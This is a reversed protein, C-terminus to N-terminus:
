NLIVLNTRQSDYMDKVENLNLKGDGDQDFIELMQTAGREGHVDALERKSLFGDNDKDIAKFIKGRLKRWFVSNMKPLFMGISFKEPALKRNEEQVAAFGESLIAIFVNVLILTMLITWTVYYMTGYFINSQRLSAYDMDTVTYRLLNLISYMYTRYDSVDSSFILFGAIGYSLWLVFIIIGFFFIDGGTKMFLTFLLRVRRSVNLYKFLKFCLLFGNVTNFYAEMSFNWVFLRYSEFKEINTFSPQHGLEVRIRWFITTYFFLLNIWDVLNWPNKRYNVFGLQYIEIIEEQTYFLVMLLVFIESTILLSGRAGLYRWFRWTKIESWTAVGGEAPIEFCLRVVTHLNLNTNLTVFDLFLVRADRGLFDNAFLEKVDAFAKDHHPGLDYVNGNGQYGVHSVRAYYTSSEAQSATMYRMMLTGVRYDSRNVKGPKYEPYCPTFPSLIGRFKCEEENVRIITLRMGGLLKNQDLVFNQQDQELPQGSSTEKVYLTPMLIQEVYNQIDILKNTELFQRGQGVHDNYSRDELNHRFQNSIWFNHSDFTRGTMCMCSFAILFILYIVCERFLFKDMVIIDSLSSLQDGSPM